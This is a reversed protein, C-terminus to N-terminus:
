PRYLEPLQEVIGRDALAPLRSAIFFRLTDRLAAPFAPATLARALARYCGSTKWRIRYQKNESKILGLGRLMTNALLWAAAHQQGARKLMIPYLDQAVEAALGSEECLGSVCFTAEVYATILDTPDRIAQLHSDIIDAAKPGLRMLNDLTPSDLFMGVDTKVEEVGSNDLNIEAGIDVSERHQADETASDESNEDSEAESGSGEEEESGSVYEDDSGEGDSLEASPGLKDKMTKKNSNDGLSNRFGWTKTKM